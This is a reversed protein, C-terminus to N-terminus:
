FNKTPRVKPANENDYHVGNAVYGNQGNADHGNHLNQMSLGDNQEMQM